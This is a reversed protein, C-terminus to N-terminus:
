PKDLTYPMDFVEQWALAQPQGEQHRSEEQVLHELNTALNYCFRRNQGWFYM